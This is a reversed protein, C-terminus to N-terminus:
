KGNVTLAGGQKGAQLWRREALTTPTEGMMEEERQRQRAAPVRYPEPLAMCGSVVIRETSASFGRGRSGCAASLGRHCRTM